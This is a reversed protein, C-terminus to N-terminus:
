FGFKVGGQINGSSFATSGTAGWYEATLAWQKSLNWEAGMGYLVGLNNVSIATGNPTNDYGAVGLRGYLDFVEGLPITGRVAFDTLGYQITGYQQTPPTSNPAANGGYNVWANTYGVELGLYRNVNVGFNGGLFYGGSQGVTGGGSSSSSSYSTNMGINADVYVSNDANSAFAAFSALGLIAGLIKKM